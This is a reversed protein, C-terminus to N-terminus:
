CGAREMLFVTLGADSSGSALSRCYADKTGDGLSSPWLATAEASGTHILLAVAVALMAITSKM